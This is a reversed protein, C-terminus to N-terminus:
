EATITVDGANLRYLSVVIAVGNRQGLCDFVGVALFQPLARAHDPREIDLPCFRLRLRLDNFLRSPNSIRRGPSLLTQKVSRAPRM